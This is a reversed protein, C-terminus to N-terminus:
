GDTLVPKDARRRSQEPLSQPLPPYSRMGKALEHTDTMLGEWPEAQSTSESIMDRQFKRLLTRRAAM